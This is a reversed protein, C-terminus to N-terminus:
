AARKEAEYAEIDELRWLVEQWDVCCHGEIIGNDVYDFEGEYTIWYHTYTRYGREIDITIGLKKALSQAKSRNSRQRDVSKPKKAV